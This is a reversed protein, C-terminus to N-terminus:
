EQHLTSNLELRFGGMIKCKVPGSAPLLENSAKSQFKVASEMLLPHQASCAGEFPTNKEEVKTGILDLGMQMTKMWDGRAAEDSQVNALVLTELLDQQEEDLQSVLNGYHESKPDYSGLGGEIGEDPEESENFSVTASGDKNKTVVPQNDDATAESDNKMQDQAKQLRNQKQRKPTKKIQAM